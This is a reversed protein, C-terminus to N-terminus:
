GTPGSGTAPRLSTTGTTSRRSDEESLTNTFAYHFEDHTFGFAKHRNRPDQPGPVAVQDALASLRARGGDTGLRNRRRGRQLRPRAPAPDADRRVLPGHHDSSHRAGHDGGRHARRDGSGHRHRDCHFGRPAGRGRGRIGPVDAHRGQVGQGRLLFGNRGAGPTMWLGHVLVITDPATGNSM